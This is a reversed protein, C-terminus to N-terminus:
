SDESSNRTNGGIVGEKGIILIGMPVALAAVAFIIPSMAWVGLAMATAEDRRKASGSNVEERYISRTIFPAIGFWCVAVWATVYYWWPFSLLDVSPVKLVIEEM